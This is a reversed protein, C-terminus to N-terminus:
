LTLSEEARDKLICPLKIFRGFKHRKGTCEKQYRVGEEVSGKSYMFQIMFTVHVFGFEKKRRSM